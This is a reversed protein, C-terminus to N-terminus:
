YSNWFMCKQVQVTQPTVCFVCVCDPFVDPSHFCCSFIDSSVCQRLSRVFIEVCVRSGLTVLQVLSSCCRRNYGNKYLLHSSFRESSLISFSLSFPPPLFIKRWSGGSPHLAELTLRMAGAVAAQVPECRGCPDAPQMRSVASSDRWM